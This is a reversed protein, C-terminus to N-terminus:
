FPCSFQGILDIIMSMGQTHDDVQNALKQMWNLKLCSSKCHDIPLRYSVMLKGMFTEAVTKADIMCGCM